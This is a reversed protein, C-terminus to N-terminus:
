QHARQTLRVASVYWPERTELLMSIMREFDDQKFLIGPHVFSRKEDAAYAGVAALALILFIKMMTTFINSHYLCHHM